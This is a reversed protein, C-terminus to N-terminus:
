GLTYGMEKAIAIIKQVVAPDDPTNQDFLDPDVGKMILKIKISAVLGSDGRTRLEILSDILQKVKGTMLLGCGKDALSYRFCRIPGPLLNIIAAVLAILLCIILYMEFKILRHKGRKPKQGLM